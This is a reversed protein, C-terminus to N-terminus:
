EDKHGGIKKYMKNILANLPDIGEVIGAVMIMMIVDGLEEALQEKSFSLKTQPNNRVWGNIRALDLEYVEGLETQVFKMAADFNPWTLGRMEFYRIIFDKLENTLMLREM